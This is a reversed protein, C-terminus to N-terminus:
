LINYLGSLHAQFIQVAGSQSKNMLKSPTMLNKDDFMKEVM